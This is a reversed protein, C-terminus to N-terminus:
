FPFATRAFANQGLPPGNPFDLRSIIFYTESAFCFCFSPFLFGIRKSSRHLINPLILATCPILYSDTVVLSASVSDWFPWLVELYCNTDSAGSAQSRCGQTQYILHASAVTPFTLWPLPTNTVSDSTRKKSSQDVSYPLM